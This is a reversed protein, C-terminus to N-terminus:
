HDRMAVLTVVFATVLHLLLRLSEWTISRLTDINNYM